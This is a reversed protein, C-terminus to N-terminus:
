TGNVNWHPTVGMASVVPKDERAVLVFTTAREPDLM